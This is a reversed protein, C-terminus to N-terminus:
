RLQTVESGLHLLSAGASGLLVLSFNYTLYSEIFVGRHFGICNLANHALPHFLEVVRQGHM